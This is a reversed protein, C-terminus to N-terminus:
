NMYLKTYYFGNFDFRKNKQLKLNVLVKSEIERERDIRKLYWKKTLKVKKKSFWTNINKRFKLGENM